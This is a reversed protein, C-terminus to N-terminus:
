FLLLVKIFSSHELGDFIDEFWQNRFFVPCIYFYEELTEPIEAMEKIARDAFGIYAM